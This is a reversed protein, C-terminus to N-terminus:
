RFFKADIRSNYIFTQLSDQLKHFSDFFEEQEDYASDKLYLARLKEFQEHLEVAKSASSVNLLDTSMLLPLQDVNDRIFTKNTELMYAFASVITEYEDGSANRLAQRDENIKEYFPTLTYENLINKWLAVVAHHLTSLKGDIDSSYSALNAFFAKLDRVSIFTEETTAQEAVETKSATGNLYGNCYDGLHKLRAFTSDARHLSNLLNNFFIDIEHQSKDMYDRATQFRDVIAQTLETPREAYKSKLMFRYYNYSRAYKEFFFVTKHVDGEDYTYHDLALKLHEEFKDIEALFQTTRRKFKHSKDRLGDLDDRVIDPTVYYTDYRRGPSMKWIILRTANEYGTSFDTINALARIGPVKLRHLNERAIQYIAKRTANDESVDAITAINEAIYATVEQYNNTVMSFTREELVEWGRVFAHDATYRVKELGWRVHFKLRINLEDQILKLENRVHNTIGIYNGLVREELATAAAKFKHIMHKDDAYVAEEHKDRTERADIFRKHLSDTDNSRLFRDVDYNSM